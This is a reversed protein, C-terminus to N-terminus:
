CFKKNLTNKAKGTYKGGGKTQKTKFYQLDWCRKMFINEVLKENKIKM